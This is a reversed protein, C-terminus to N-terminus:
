RIVYDFRQNFQSKLIVNLIDLFDGNLMLFLLLYYNRSVKEM